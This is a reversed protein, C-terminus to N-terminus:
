PSQKGRREELKSCALEAASHSAPTISDSNKRKRKKLKVPSSPRSLSALLGCSQYQEVVLRDLLKIKSVMASILMKQEVITDHQNQILTRQSDCMNELYQIREHDINDRLPSIDFSLSFRNQPDRGKKHLHYPRQGTSQPPINFEPLYPTEVQERKESM